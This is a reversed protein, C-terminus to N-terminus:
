VAIVLVKREREKEDRELADSTYMLAWGTMSAADARRADM